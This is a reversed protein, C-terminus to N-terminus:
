FDQIRCCRVPAATALSTAYSRSKMVRSGMESSRMSSSPSKQAVRVRAGVWSGCTAGSKGTQAITLFLDVASLMGIDRGRKLTSHYLECAHSQKGATIRSRWM